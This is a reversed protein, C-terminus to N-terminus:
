QAAEASFLEDRSMPQTDETADEERSSLADLANGMVRGTWLANAEAMWLAYGLSWDPPKLARTTWIQARRGLPTNYLWLDIRGLPLTRYQRPHVALYRCSM